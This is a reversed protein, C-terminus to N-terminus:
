AWDNVRGGLADFSCSTHLLSHPSRVHQQDSRCSVTGDECTTSTGCGHDVAAHAAAAVLLFVSGLGQGFARATHKARCVAAADGGCAAVSCMARARVRGRPMGQAARCIARAYEGEVYMGQAACSLHRSGADVCLATTARSRTDYLGAWTQQRM